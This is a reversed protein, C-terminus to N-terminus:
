NTLHPDIHYNDLPELGLQMLIPISINHSYQAYSGIECSDLRRKRLRHIGYLVSPKPRSRRKSLTSNYRYRLVKELM